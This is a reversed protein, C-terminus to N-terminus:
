QGATGKNPEAPLARRLAARFADPNEIQPIHGAQPVRLLESRPVLHQIRKAQSIPTITDTEGWVLTLPVNLGAYAAPDSSRQKARPAFLQPLWAAVGEYAREVYLPRRYLAVWDDTAREKESVFAKLLPRTFVPNTLFAASLTESLWRQRLLDYLMSGDSATGDLGLAGDVLIVSRVRQPELFVAEMLPGAGFSHGVFVAQGIGLQDLVALIRRAQAPGSYDRSSPPVSFGFPPLDIAIAQFGLATVEKMSARWLESWSGTGHVFLVAPSRPNGLRQVLIDTDSARVFESGAPATLRRDQTQNLRTQLSLGFVVALLTALVAATGVIAIRASKWLAL